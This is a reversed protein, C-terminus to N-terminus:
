LTLPIGQKFPKYTLGNQLIIEAKVMASAREAANVYTKSLNLISGCPWNVWKNTTSNQEMWSIM